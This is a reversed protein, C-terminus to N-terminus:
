PSDQDFYADIDRHGEVIAVVELLDKDYRFFIVYSRFAVSRIGAGLESRERGLTGPLSALKECRGILRDVFGDAVEISTSERLMYDGIGALDDLAQSSLHLRYTM